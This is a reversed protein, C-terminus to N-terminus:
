TMGFHYRMIADLVITKAHPIPKAIRPIPPCIVMMGCCEGLNIAASYRNITAEHTNHHNLRSALGRL